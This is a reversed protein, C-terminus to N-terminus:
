VGTSVPRAIEFPLVPVPVDIDSKRYPMTPPPM